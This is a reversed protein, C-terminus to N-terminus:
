STTTNLRTVPEVDRTRAVRAFAPVPTTSPRTPTATIADLQSSRSPTIRSVRETTSVITPSNKPATGTTSAIAIM